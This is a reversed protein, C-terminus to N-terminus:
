TSSTGGLSLNIVNAGADVAYVIGAAVGGWTGQNTENLVKVPLISCSPCVGVMGIGNNAGAAAIGAVHTGHGYDDQPDSDNNVFDYGPLLRGAFEPNSPLVGSDLIAITIDASGMTYNWALPLNIINPAYVQKQPNNYDADNVQVPTMPITSNNVWPQSETKEEIIPLGNVVGDFEVSLVSKSRNAVALPDNGSRASAWNEPLRVQATSLADIWLLSQGGMEQTLRSRDAATTDPRFKMLVINPALPLNSDAYVPNMIQLSLWFLLALIVILITKKWHLTASTM